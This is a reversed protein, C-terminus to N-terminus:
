REDASDQAAWKIAMIAAASGRDAYARVQDGTVHAECGQEQAQSVAGQCYHHVLDLDAAAQFQKVYKQIQAQSERASPEGGAFLGLAVFPGALAALMALMLLLGALRGLVPRELVRFFRESM